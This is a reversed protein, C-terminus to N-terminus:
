VTKGDRQCKKLPRPEVAGLPFGHCDGPLIAPAHDGPRLARFLQCRSKIIENVCKDQVERGPLRLGVNRVDSSTPSQASQCEAVSEGQGVDMGKHCVQCPRRPNKSQREAIHQPVAAPNLLFRLVSLSLEM